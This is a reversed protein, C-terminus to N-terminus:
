DGLLQRLYNWGSMIEEATAPQHPELVKLTEKKVYPKLLSFDFSGQLPARHDDMKDVDHLHVGLLRSGFNDLLEKHKFFGLNEYIQAHGTDHWYFLPSGPFSKVIQGMEEISPIENFYYRNEIGLSIKKERAYSCLEELSKLTQEFCPAAKDRRDKLMRSKLQEYNKRNGSPRAAKSDLYLGGLERIKEVTNQVKGLHLVVAQAQLISATDITRKTYYLAQKREDNDLASLSFIDPTAARRSIGDPIPCFNHLSVVKIQNRASLSIMEEVLAASLSFNLEVCHFGIAKIEEIINRAASYQGANWSTSLAFMM